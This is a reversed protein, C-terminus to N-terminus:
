FRLAVQIMYGKTEFGQAPLLRFSLNHKLRDIFTNKQKQNYKHASSTASYINGAYFGSATISLLGGLAYHEDEFADVAAWILGTNLIFAVLADKYRECYLQGAGPVISLAGALAPSKLALGASESLAKQLRAVPLTSYPSIKDFALKAQTWDTQEIHIWGLQFYAKDKIERSKTLTILNHMPVIAQNPMGTKLYCQTLMFYSSVAIDDLKAGNTLAKFQRLANNIDGARFFAKGAKLAIARKQSSKPFFFTFKQYEEAARQFQGDNFLKDAYQIQKGPEITLGWACLPAAATFFLAFLLIGNNKIGNLFFLPM